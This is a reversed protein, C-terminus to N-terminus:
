QHRSHRHCLQQEGARLDPDDDDGNHDIMLQLQQDASPQCAAVASAFTRQRRYYLRRLRHFVNSRRTASLLARVLIARRGVAIQRPIDPYRMLVLQRGDLAGRDPSSSPAQRTLWLIGIQRRGGAERTQLHHGGFGLPEARGIVEVRDSGAHVFQPAITGTHRHIAIGTAYVARLWYATLLRGDGALLTTKGGAIM